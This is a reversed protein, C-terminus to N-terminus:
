QHSCGHGQGSGCTFQPTFQPLRGLLLAEVAERVTKSGQGFRVEIGVQNFGQLPRMGMGGAILVGVGNQALLTVPALCGGQEHPVNPLTSVERIQGAAIKVLTYLDCHGFHAELEADLGGPHVSPIAVLVESM